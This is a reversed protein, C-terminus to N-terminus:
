LNGYPHIKRKEIVYAKHAEEQTHFYGIHKTKGNIGIQAHFKIGSKTRGVGLFGTLNNSQAKIKNQCNGSRTIVRLNTITNNKPNCDIHDIEGDPFKGYVYLWVLRHIYFKKGNIGIIKYGRKNCTGAVSGKIAHTNTTVKWVFIGTDPTYHLLEKLREQTLM